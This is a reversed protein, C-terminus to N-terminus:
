RQSYLGVLTQSAENKYDMSLTVFITMQDVTSDPMPITAPESGDSRLSTLLRNWKSVEVPPVGVWLVGNEPPLRATMVAFETGAVRGLWMCLPWASPSHSCSSSPEDLLLIYTWTWRSICVSSLDVVGRDSPDRSSRTYRVAQHSETM